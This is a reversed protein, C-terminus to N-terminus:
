AFYKAYIASAVQFPDGAPVLAYQNTQQHTWAECWSDMANLFNGENFEVDTCNFIMRM